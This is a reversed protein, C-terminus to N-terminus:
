EGLETTSDFLKGVENKGIVRAPKIHTIYSDADPGLGTKWVKHTYFYEEPKIYTMNLLYERFDYGKRDCSAEREPDFIFHKRGHAPDNIVSCVTDIQKQNLM